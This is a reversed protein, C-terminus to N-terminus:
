TVDWLSSILDTLEHYSLNIAKVNVLFEQVTEVTLEKKIRLLKEEDVVIESRANTKTKLLGEEELIGYSKQVTAPNIGLVAALVRRSPLEDENKLMGLHIQVKIHRIIQLYVPDKENLKINDLSVDM